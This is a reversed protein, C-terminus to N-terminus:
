SLLHSQRCERKHRSGERHPFHLRIKLPLHLDCFFFFNSFFLWFFSRSSLLSFNVFCIYPAGAWTFCFGCIDMCNDSILRQEGKRGSRFPTYPTIETIERVLIFANHGRLHLLLTCLAETQPFIFGAVHKHCLFGTANCQQLRAREALQKFSLHRQWREAPLFQM